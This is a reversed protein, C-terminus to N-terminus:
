KIVKLFNEKFNEPSFKNTFFELSKKGMEDRLCKNDILKKLANGLEEDDLYKVLFGNINQQVMESVGGTNTAIIPLGLSMGELISLPFSEFKSPLILIDANLLQKEIDNIFGLLKVETFNSEKIFDKLYEDQPGSGAILIKFPSSFTKKYFLVCKLLWDIGKNKDLRSIILIMIEKKDEKIATYRKKTVITNNIVAIQNNRWWVEEIAANYLVVIQDCFFYSINLFFYVFPKKLFNLANSSTHKYAIKKSHLFPAFYISRNGNLLTWDIKNEKIYNNLITVNSYSKLPSNPIKIFNSSNLKQILDDNAIAFYLDVEIGIIANLDLIFKQGGGYFATFDVILLRQKKTNLGM